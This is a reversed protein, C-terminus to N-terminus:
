TATSETGKDDSKNYARRQTIGFPVQVNGGKIFVNEARKVQLPPTHADAELRLWNRIKQAKEPTTTFRAWVTVEPGSGQKVWENYCAHVKQGVLVRMPDKDQTSRTVTTMEGAPIFEMELDAPVIDLSVHKGDHGANLECVKGNGLDHKCAPKRGRKNGNTAPATETASTTVGNRGDVNSGSM